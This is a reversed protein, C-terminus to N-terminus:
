VALSLFRRGNSSSSASSVAFFFFFVKFGSVRLACPVSIELFFFVGALFPSTLRLFFFSFGFIEHEFSSLCVRLRPLLVSSATAM